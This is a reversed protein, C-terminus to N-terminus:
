RRVIGIRRQAGQAAESLYQRTKGLRWACVIQQDRAIGEHVLTSGVLVMTWAAKQLREFRGARDCPPEILVSSVGGWFARRRLWSMTARDERIRHRVEAGPVYGITM